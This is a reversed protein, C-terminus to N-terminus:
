SVAFASDRTGNDEVSVAQSWTRTTEDYIRYVLKQANYSNRNADVTLYVVMTEGNHDILQAKSHEYSDVEIQQSIDSEWEVDEIDVSVRELTYSTLDYVPLGNYSGLYGTESEDLLNLSQSKPILEVEMFQWSKEGYLSFLGVDLKAYIGYEGSLVLGDFYTVEGIVITSTLKIRGFVGASLVRNGIGLSMQISAETTVTYEPLLIECNQVDFGLGKIELEGSANAKLQITIPLFILVYDATWSAELEISMKLYSRIIQLDNEEGIAFCLGGAMNTELSFDATHKKPKILKNGKLKEDAKQAANEMFNKVRTETDSIADKLNTKQGDVETQIKQLESDLVDDMDWTIYLENNVVAFSLPCDVPSQFNIKIGDLFEVGTDSLELAVDGFLNEFEGSFTFSITRIYLEEVIVDEGSDTYMYVYIPQETDPDFSFESAEIMFCCRGDQSLANNGKYITQLVKPILAGSENKADKVHQVIQMKEIKFDTTGQVVIPISGAYKVNIYALDGAIDNGYCSVGKVSSDTFLNFYDVGIEKLLYANETEYTSYYNDKHIMLNVKNVNEYVFYVFGDKDTTKVVGDVSVEVGSIPTKDCYVFVAYVQQKGANAFTVDLIGSYAYAHYSRWYESKYGNDSVVRIQSPWSENDLPYYLCLRELVTQNTGFVDEGADTPANGKFYVSKITTCDFAHDGLVGVAGDIIVTVLASGKFAYAGIDIKDSVLQVQSIGTCNEFASIEISELSEPFTVTRLYTNAYFAYGKVSVIGQPIDFSSAYLGASYCILETKNKNYLVGNEVTFHTHEQSVTLATLRKCNSFAGVDIEEVSLPISIDTISACGFFAKEGIRTVTSPIPCDTLASCDMFAHDSVSTIGEEIQVTKISDRYAYWPAGALSFDYLDGSGSIVLTGDEYLIWNAQEGCVGSGGSVVNRTYVVTVYVTEDPMVGSIVAPDATYWEITLPSISYSSDYEVKVTEEGILTGDEYQYTIVLPYMNKGYVVSVLLDESPMVGSVVDISPTYGSLEPSVVEYAEGFLKPISVSEAAVTGNSAYTYEVTLTYVNPTYTVTYTVDGEVIGSIVEVDATYGEKKITDISFETGYQRHHEDTFGESGDTYQYVISIKHTNAAYTVTVETDSAGMTGTIVGQSATYGYLEPSTVAYSEGYKVTKKYEPAAEENSDFYLYKVTLTYENADYVTDVSIDNDGMVGSIVTERATYGVYEPLTVSYESHYGFKGSYSGLSKGDATLHNIRLTHYNKAYHVDIITDAVMSGAVTTKDPTYGVYTPTNVSYQENKDKWGFVVRDVVGDKHYCITLSYINEIHLMPSGDEIIWTNNAYGAQDSVSIYSSWKLTNIIFDKSDTFKGTEGTCSAGGDNAWATEQWEEYNCGDKGNNKTETYSYTRSISSSTNVYSNTITCSSNANVAIMRGASANIYETLASVSNNAYCNTVNGRAYGILGGATATVGNANASVSGTAYCNVINSATTMAEGVLGGAIANSNEAVVKTSIDATSYCNIITASNGGAIGGALAFMYSSYSVTKNGNVAGKAYCSYITGFNYGAIGGAMFSGNSIVNITSQYSCRGITGENYGAIGGCYVYIGGKGTYKASLATKVEVDLVSGSTQNYGVVAGAYINASAYSFNVNFGSLKLNAISGANYGFLGAIGSSTTTIQMGTITYGNGNFNGKFPTTANGIPTWEYGSLDINNALMVYSSGFLGANVQRSFFALEQASRIVYPASATGNGSSFASAAKGDWTDAVTSDVIQEEDTNQAFSSFAGLPMALVVMLIALFAAFVRKM